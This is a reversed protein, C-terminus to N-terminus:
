VAIGHPPLPGPDTGVMLSLMAQTDALISNAAPTVEAEAADGEADSEDDPDLFATPGSPAPDDPAAAEPCHVPQGAPGQGATRLYVTPANDAARAYLAAGRGSSDRM